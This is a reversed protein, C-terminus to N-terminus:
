TPEGTPPTEQALRRAEHKAKHEAEREAERKAAGDLLEPLSSKHADCARCSEDDGRFWNVQIEVRHTAKATCDIVDCDPAGNPNKQWGKSQGARGLRPYERPM